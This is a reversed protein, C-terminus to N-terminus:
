HPVAFAPIPGGFELGADLSIRAAPDELADRDAQDRAVLIM